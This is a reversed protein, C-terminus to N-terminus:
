LRDEAMSWYDGLLPRAIQNMFENVNNQYHALWNGTHQVAPLSVIENDDVELMQLAPFSQKMVPAFDLAITEGLTSRVQKSNGMHCVLWGESNLLGSLRRSDVRRHPGHVKPRMFADIRLDFALVGNTSSRSSRFAFLVRCRTLQAGVDCRGLCLREASSLQLRSKYKKTKTIKKM